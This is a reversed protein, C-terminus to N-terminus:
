DGSKAARFRTPSMGTKGRFFTAFNDPRSYGIMLAIRTVSLTTTTLLEQARQIRARTLEEGPGYGFM